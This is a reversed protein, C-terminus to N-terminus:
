IVVPTTELSIVEGVDLVWLRSDPLENAAAWARLREPPEGVAEDTLRFTGWHMALLHRAALSVFADGAEEPSIHQPEMFWRPAYGGIPLMAWDIPGIREAITAFHEGAATDGAHYAVGEPGRLIFGGWLTDNRNWPERMSWHRAPVLTITLEGETHSQWWDLEVVRPYGLRSLRRGNGLPVVYVPEPGIRQLTPLDMHDRHDHSLVVVDLAPAQDLPMGPPVLRPVVGSIARSWIPDTAITKGGLRLLWTAHGIWCAAAEAAAFREAAGPRVAPVLRDLRAFEDGRQRRGRLPDIVKWRLMDAPGRRPQTALEDFRGM